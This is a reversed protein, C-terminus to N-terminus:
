RTSREPAAHYQRRAAGPGAPPRHHWATLWWTAPRALYYAPAGPPSFRPTRTPAPM